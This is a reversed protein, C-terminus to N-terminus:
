NSAMLTDSVRVTMHAQCQAAPDAGAAAGEPEAALGGGRFLPRASYLAHRRIAAQIPIMGGSM